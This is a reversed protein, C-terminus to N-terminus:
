EYRISDAPNATAAKFTQAAVTTFAIIYTVVGSAIFIRFDIGVRFAFDQLWMEMLFYGAPWAIINAILILRAFDQLLLGVISKVSSGLIKRIGIEHTREEATFSVLGFLGLCAILVTFASFIIFVLGMITENRYLEALYDEMFSYEFSSNPAINSLTNRLHDITDQIYEGTIRVSVQNIGEPNVPFLMVPEIPEYLSSLHFDKVVGVIQMKKGDLYTNLASNLVTDVGMQRAAINNIIVAKEMDSTIDRDFSRGELLNMKYFDLFNYDVEMYRFIPPEDFLSGYWTVETENLVKVPLESSGTVDLVNSHNLFGNKLTEYSKRTVEDGLKITIVGKYDYGLDKNKIFNLQAFIIATGIILLISIGFQLVVLSKRLLTKTSRTSLTGKLVKSPQFASLFVAPHSGSFLGVALSMGVMYGIMLPDGTFSATLSRYTISNFVPLLVEVLGASLLFALFSLLISESLFQRMLQKRTAGVVKRVGVEKARISSRATSLNMFNFCASLLIVLAVTVFIYVYKILSNPELERALASTLHIDTLKQLRLRVFDQTNTGHHPFKGLLEYLKEDVNVPDFDEAMLLYTYFSHDEWDTLIGQRFINNLRTMPALINIHFHSNKPMDQFVGAVRFEFDGKINILRNIPNEDKFYKQATSASLLVSNPQGLADKDAGESMTMDFLDFFQPESFYLDTEEFKIGEIEVVTRTEDPFKYLRVFEMVDPIEDKIIPGLPAPGPAPTYKRNRLQVEETVRYIRGSNEHYRDFGLEDVVYLFILLCCAIGLSLGFINIFSYLKHRTLNRYAVKLYNFFM